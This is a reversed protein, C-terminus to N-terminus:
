SELIVALEEFRKQYSHCQALHRRTELVADWYFEPRRLMDALRERVEKGPALPAGQPGYIAAVIEEPLLLLPITNSYFTAFTRNTVLGLKNHLPRHLVPSFRAQSQLKTVEQFPVAERTEVGLRKMLDTDVDAGHLGMQVAWDPRRGWDWGAFCIPGLQEKLPEIALLLAEVQSWRQWNNGVYVLGYPKCDRLQGPAVAAPDFGHFLFPRVNSRLPKHTPQLIKEAVAEFGEIWEWGQHGDLKELHNFDHEVRITENYRGLCDIIVRRQKPVGDLLRALYPLDPFDRPNYVVFIAFDFDKVALSTPVQPFDSLQEGFVALEHGLTKGVAIYKTITDIARASRDLKSVVLLKM